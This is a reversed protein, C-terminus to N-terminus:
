AKTPTLDSDAVSEEELAIVERTYFHNANKADRVDIAILYPPSVLCTVRSQFPLSEEEGEILGHYTICRRGLCSPEAGKELLPDLEGALIQEAAPALTEAAMPWPPQGHSAVWGENTALDGYVDTPGAAQANRDMIEEMTRAPKGLGRPALLDDLITGVARGWDDRARFRTGKMWVDMFSERRPLGPATRTLRV